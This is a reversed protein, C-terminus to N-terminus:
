EVPAVFTAPESLALPPANPPLPPVTSVEPSFKLTVASAFTSVDAGFPTVPLQGPDNYPYLSQQAGDNDIVQRFYGQQYLLGVGIIPVGLDSAAKLQDGAVNGLGGSYIPLAESLMFEMSFYAISSLPPQPHTQQFWAPKDAADRRAQVLDDVRQRFAADALIGQLKKRSVTQLVARPNQTLEWLGPDLKRWVEDTAHDWSSRMDMALELLADYGGDGEMDGRLVRDKLRNVHTQENMTKEARTHRLGDQHLAESIVTSKFIASMDFTFDIFFNLNADPLARPPTM